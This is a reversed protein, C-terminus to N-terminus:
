CTLEHLQTHYQVPTCKSFLKMQMIFCARQHCSKSITIVGKYARSGLRVFTQIYYYLEQIYKWSQLHKPEPDMPNLLWICDVSVPLFLHISSSIPPPSVNNLFDALQHTTQIIIQSTPCLYDHIILSTKLENSFKPCPANVYAMTKKTKKTTTKKLVM